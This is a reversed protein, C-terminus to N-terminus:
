IPASFDQLLQLDTMGTMTEPFQLFTLDERPYIMESLLKM